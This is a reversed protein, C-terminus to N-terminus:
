RCAGDHFEGLQCSDIHLPPTRFEDISVDAPQHVPVDDAMAEANGERPEPTTVQDALPSMPIGGGEMQGEGLAIVQAVVQRALQDVAQHFAADDHYQLRLGHHQGRDGYAAVEVMVAALDLFDPAPRDPPITRVKAPDATQPDYQPLPESQISKRVREGMDAIAGGWAEMFAAVDLQLKEIDLDVGVKITSNTDEAM